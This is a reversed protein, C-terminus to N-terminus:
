PLLANTFAANPDTPKILGNSEMFGTFLGWEGPEMYGYPRGPKPLFYPLTANVAARQLKPDLDKNAALLADGPHERLKETGGELAKLFKRIRGPHDNVDSERAAIVLEDYNPVGAQEIRIV